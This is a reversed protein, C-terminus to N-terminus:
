FLYSHTGTNLLIVFDSVAELFVKVTMRKFSERNQRM